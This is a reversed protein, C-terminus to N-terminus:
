KRLWDPLPRARFRSGYVVDDGLVLARRLPPAHVALAAVLRHFPTRPKSWPCVAQCIGCTYGAKGWYRLCQEEDLKWKRIGRVITKQGEPIAGSPCSTACKRCKECFDQIGIDVPEDLALPLDTTVTALRFDAGLSRSVVYGCRALEGIGADVAVPVALVLYNRMHHARAPWGLARVFRALQVSALVSNAYVRGVEFDVARSAGTAVLDKEQAFALSIAYRHALEVPEGYRGGAYGPPIGEFYPPNVYGGGEFFPRAGRHSYVWESRLPGIRVDDAGLLRAFAKIRRAADAPDWEVRETAPVGDVRDPLALASVPVFHAEYIARAVRDVGAGGEMKGALFRALERDIEKKEPHRGHYEREGASGPALTERSFVTDREDFRAIEGVEEYTPRRTM